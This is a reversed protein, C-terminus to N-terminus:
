PSPAARRPPSPSRSTDRLRPRLEELLEGEEGRVLVVDLHLHRRGGFIEEVLPVAEDLTAHPTEDGEDLGPLADARM